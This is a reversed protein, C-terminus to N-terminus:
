RTEKCTIWKEIGREQIDEVTLVEFYRVASGSDYKIRNGEEVVTEGEVKIYHTADVNVSKFSFQQQAKIPYIAAFVSEGDSWTEVFGGEGDATSTKSQITIYHRRETAGTKKGQREM